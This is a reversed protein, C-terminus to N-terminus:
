RHSLYDTRVSHVVQTGRLIVVKLPNLLPTFGSKRIGGILHKVGESIELYNRERVDDLVCGEGDWAKIM